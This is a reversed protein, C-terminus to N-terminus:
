PDVRLQAVPVAANELEVEFIGELDATFVFRAPRGPAVPEVLDYGHLHVNEGRDSTVTFRVPQGVRVRIRTVGREPVLNEVEIRVGPESPSAAARRATRAGDNRPAAAVDPSPTTEAVSSVPLGRRQDVPRLVVFGVILVSLTIALVAIRALPSM